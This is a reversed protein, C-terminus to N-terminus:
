LRIKLVVKVVPEPAELACSPIHADEPFFVAFQGELVPILQASPVLAYLAADQEADFAMTMRELRGLPAWAMGERGRHIYHVDVYKRHVEFERGTLPSTNTKVVIAFVDEGDIEQRGEGPDAPLQRLYDFGRRFRPGFPAYLAWQTLSDLIM